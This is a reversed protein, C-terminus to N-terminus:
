QSSLGSGAFLLKGDREIGEGESSEWEKFVSGCFWLPLIGDCDVVM